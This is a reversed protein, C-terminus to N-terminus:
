DLYNFLDVGRQDANELDPADERARENSEDTKGEVLLDRLESSRDIM